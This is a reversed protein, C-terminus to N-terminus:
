SVTTRDKDAGEERESHLSEESHHVPDVQVEAARAQELPAPAHRSEAIEDGASADSEGAPAPTAKSKKVQRPTAARRKRKM